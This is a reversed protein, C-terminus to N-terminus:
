SIFICKMVELVHEILEKPLNEVHRKSKNYWWSLEKCMLVDVEQVLDPDM